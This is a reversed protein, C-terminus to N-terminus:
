TMRWTGRLLKVPAGRIPSTSARRESGSAGHRQEGSVELEGREERAELRVLELLDPGDRADDVGPAVLHEKALSVRHLAHEHEQGPAHLDVPERGVALLVDQVDDPRALGEGLRGDEHGPAVRGERLGELLGRRHEEGLVREQPEKPLLRGHAELDDRREGAVASRMSSRESLSTEARSARQSRWVASSFPRAKQSRSIVL